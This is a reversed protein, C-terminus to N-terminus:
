AVRANRSFYLRAKAAFWLSRHHGQSGASMLVAVTSLKAESGLKTKSEMRTIAAGIADTSRPFTRKNERPMSKVVAPAEPPVECYVNNGKNGKQHSTIPSCRTGWSRQEVVCSRLLHSCVIFFAAFPPGITEGDGRHHIALASRFIACMILPNHRTVMTTTTGSTTGGLM